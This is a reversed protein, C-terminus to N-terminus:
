RGCSLFHVLGELVARKADACTMEGEQVVSTQVGVDVCVARATKPQRINPITKFVRADPSPSAVTSLAGPGHTWLRSQRVSSAEDPIHSHRLFPDLASSATPFPPLSKPQKTVKLKGSAVAPLLSEVQAEWTRSDAKKGKLGKGKVDRRIPASPFSTVSAIEDEESLECLLPEEYEAVDARPCTKWSPGVKSVVASRPTVLTSEEDSHSFPTPSLSPTRLDIISAPDPSPPPLTSSSIDDAVVKAEASQPGAALSSESM